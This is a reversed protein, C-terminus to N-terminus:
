TSRSMSKLINDADQLIEEETKPTENSGNSNGTHMKVYKDFPVFKKPDMNPLEVLWKSWLKDETNKKMAEGILEVFLDADLEMIFNM